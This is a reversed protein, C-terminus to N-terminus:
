IPGAYVSQEAKSFIGPYVVSAFRAKFSHFKRPDSDGTKMLVGHAAINWTGLGQLIAGKVGARKGFEDDAHM